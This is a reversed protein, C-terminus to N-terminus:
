ISSNANEKRKRYLERRMSNIKDASTRGEANQYMKQYTEYDYGEVTSSNDFRVAYNCNCNAHVHEAHGNKLTNKTVTQWGRSALTLCFACTDGHPVWAFQAKDRIANKLTTDAGVQKVIRAVATPVFDTSKKMAGNVAKAVEGYEPIGAPEAPFVTVGQSLATAEYMQCALEAITEGYKMALANAYDLLRKSDTIGNADIYKKMFEAAKNSIESMKNIYRLWTKESMQM